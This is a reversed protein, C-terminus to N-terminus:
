YDYPNYEPQEYLLNTVESIFEQEYPDTDVYNYYESDFDFDDDPNM